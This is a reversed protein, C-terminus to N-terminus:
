ALDCGFFPAHQFLLKIAQIHLHGTFIYGFGDLCPGLATGAHTHLLCNVLHLM